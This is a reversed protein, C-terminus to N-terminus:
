LRWKPQSATAEEASTRSMNEMQNAEIWLGVKGSHTSVQKAM